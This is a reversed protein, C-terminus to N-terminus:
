ANMFAAREKQLDEIKSGLKKIAFDHQDSSECAERIDQAMTREQLVVCGTSGFFLFFLSVMGNLQNKLDTVLDKLKAERDQKVLIDTLRAKHQDLQMQMTKLDRTNNMLRDNMNIMM